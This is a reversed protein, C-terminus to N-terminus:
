LEKPDLISSTNSKFALFAQIQTVQWAQIKCPYGLGQGHYGLHNQFTLCVLGKADALHSQHATIMQEETWPISSLCQKKQLFFGFFGLGYNPPYHNKDQIREWKISLFSNQQEPQMSSISCESLKPFPIRHTAASFADWIKELQLLIEPAWSLM